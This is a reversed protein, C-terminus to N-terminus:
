LIHQTVFKQVVPPLAFLTTNEQPVQELLSKEGLQRLAQMLESKSELQLEQRLQELSVAQHCQALCCVIRTELDSLRHFQHYLIKKFEDDLVITGLDIFESVRGQCVEKINACIMRLAQPNGRYLTILAPWERDDRLEFEQLIERADEGLGELRLSRVRPNGERLAVEKPKERSNLLLCSQHREEGVRKLLEGYGEYGIQAHGTLDGDRLVSDYHDLIVLCRQQRLYEMLQSLRDKESEPLALDPKQSLFRLLEALLDNLKPVDRLSRWIFYDFQSYAQEAAKVSLVTKGIGGMGVIAVLRCSDPQLWEALKHLENVRGYFPEAEPADDWDQRQSGTPQAIIPVLSPETNDEIDSTQSPASLLEPMHKGFLAMLDSRRSKRAEEEQKLEFDDCLHEIHKRVTSEEIYLAEAIQKDNRGQLFQLLVKKRSRPPVQEFQDRFQEQNM